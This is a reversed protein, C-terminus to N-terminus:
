KIISPHKILALGDIDIEDNETIISTKIEARNKEPYTELIEFVATYKEQTFIPKFFSLDQKLYITGNGPYITWFVKSFIGAGLFGHVITRGFITRKASEPDLHIPNQDGFASAFTVLDNQTFSFEHRYIDGKNIQQDM